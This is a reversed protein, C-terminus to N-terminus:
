VGDDDDDCDGAEAAYGDGDLDTQDDDVMGDCDDDIGNEPVESNSPSANEDGDNCDGDQESYGDGDDDYCETGEDITGDCDNDIGDCEEDAAPNVAADEDDCDTSCISFGDGDQDYLAGSGTSCANGRVVLSEAALGSGFNIVLDASAEDEDTPAFAISVEKEEGAEVEIPVSENESFVDDSFSLTDIIVSAQGSNQVTFTEEATEGVSVPGFDVVAPWIQVAGVVAQGRVVVDHEEDTAEDTVVTVQAWHLGEEEPTYSFTIVGIEDQEVSPLDSADVSFYDGEVNFVDVAIVKVEGQVSSVEVTFTETADVAVTGLDKLAPSVVAEGRTGTLSVDQGCGMFVVCSSLLLSKHTWNKMSKM